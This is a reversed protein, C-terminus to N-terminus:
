GGQGLPLFSLLTLIVSYLHVPSGGRFSLFDYDLSIYQPAAKLTIYGLTHRGEM